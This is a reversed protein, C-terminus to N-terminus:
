PVARPHFTSLTTGIAGIVPQFSVTDGEMEIRRISVTVGPPLETLAFAGAVIARLERVLTQQVQKTLMGELLDCVISLAQAV